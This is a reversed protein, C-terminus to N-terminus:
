LGELLSNQAKNKAVAILKVFKDSVKSNTYNFTRLSEQISRAWPQMNKLDNLKHTATIGPHLGHRELNPKEKLIDFLRTNFNVVLELKDLRQQIELVPKDKEVSVNM